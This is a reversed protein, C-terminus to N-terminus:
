KDSFVPNYSQESYSRLLEYKIDIYIINEMEHPMLM